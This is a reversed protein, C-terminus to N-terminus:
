PLNLCHSVTETPVLVDFNVQEKGRDMRSYKKLMETACIFGSTAEVVLIHHYGIMKM